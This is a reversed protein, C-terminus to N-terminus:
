TKNRKECLSTKSISMSENEKNVKNGTDTIKTCRSKDLSKAKDSKNSSYKDVTKNSSQPKEIRNVTDINKRAIPTTISEKVANTKTGTDNDRGIVVKETTTVLSKESSM